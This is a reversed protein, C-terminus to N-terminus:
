DLFIVRTVEVGVVRVSSERIEEGDIDWCVIGKEPAVTSTNVVEYDAM